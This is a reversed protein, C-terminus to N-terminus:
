FNTQLGFSVSVPEPLYNGSPRIYTDPDLKEKNARWIVGLNNIYCYLELRQAGSNKSTPVLYGLRIDQLRFHDGKEVLVDSFRYFWTRDPNSPHSVSPIDTKSEDGPSKWRKAFNANMGSNLIESYGLNLAPKRFYYGLKYVINFSLNFGKFFFDNRISGFFTPITSGHFNLSDPFFNRIIGNYDKSVEGRLYGQPEGNKPDLGAWKYSFLGYLPKGAIYLPNLPDISVISSATPQRVAYVVKNKLLNGIVTVNWNFPKALIKATISADVGNTVTKGANKNVAGPGMQPLGTVQEVLDLGNKKYYELTGLFRANFLTFDLGVNVIKVKEWRLEDNAPVLNIISPAGTLPDIFRTGTLYATGNFVNGNTGYSLRLKLDPMWSINYFPEKNVTWGAGISWLPVLRQNTKIGFLNAGDKRASATLDYRKKLSYGAVAYYSIFRNLLGVAGGNMPFAANITSQGIPNVPYLTNLNLNSVSTGFEDSYGVAASETGVASLERIEVGVITSVSHANFRQHYDLNARFSNARWDYNGRNLLGGKPFNYVFLGNQGELVTFRNVFNRAAYSSGHRYIKSKIDQNENQFQVEANLFSAIEYKVGARLVLDKITTYKETNRIEDMPRYKWDLFGLGMMSDVYNASYDKVLASANGADDVLRAYPFAQGYKSSGVFLSGHGLENHQFITNQSYNLYAMVELKKLPRYINSSTVTLRNAGNRVLNDRKNDYGVSLFYALNSTGGRLNMQYQQNIGPQYLYKLMDRRLDNARLANLRSEAEDDTIAGARQLALIEVAPSVPPRSTRNNLDANFYGRNFLETEADIYDAASMYNRDKYLDPRSVVTMNTNFGVSMKQNYKGKKTTLVIVGNGSRAGWIGASAADKLVTVSEIDNPNINRIDGEYSFNDLIVLPNINVKNPSLTSLGRLSIGLPVGTPMKSITSLSAPKYSLLGSTVGELRDLINMGVRRHLLASDILVFSGTSREKPLDQYGTSVVTVAEIQTVAPMLVFTLFKEGELRFQRSLYGMSSIELVGKVPAGEIRFRGEANTKAGKFTGKVVVSASPIPNGDTDSISGNITIVEPEPKRAALEKNEYLLVQGKVQVWGVPQDRLVREMVEKLPAHRFNVRMRQLRNLVSYEYTVTLGMQAQVAGFIEEITYNGSLTLTPEGTAPQAYSAVHIGACLLILLLCRRLSAVGQGSIRELNM